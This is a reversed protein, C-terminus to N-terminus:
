LAKEFFLVGAVPDDHYRPIEYFGQGRYLAIASTLRELTDLRMRSYGSARASALIEQVLRLGLGSGRFGEVVWLRKMECIGPQLPRMAVCGAPVDGEWAVLLAGEPPAYKGPLTAVEQEFQQFTLDEGLWREYDRFLRQAVEVPPAADICHRANRLHM